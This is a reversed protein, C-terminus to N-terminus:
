LTGSEMLRKLTALDRDIETSRHRSLAVAAIRAVGTPHGEVLTDLRTGSGGRPLPM